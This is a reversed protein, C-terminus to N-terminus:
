LLLEGRLVRMKSVWDEVTEDEYFRITRWGISLLENDRKIDNEINMHWYKGDAELDIKLSPIAIDAYRMSIGTSIPYGTEIDTFMDKAIKYLKQELSSVFGIKGMRRNPHLNPNKQFAEKTKLSIQKRTEESHHKNYFHNKEGFMSPRPGMNKGKCGLSIRKKTEDSCIKGRNSDGIKKKVDPRSSSNNSGLRKAEPHEIYFKKIGESIQKLTNSSYINIKGKNWPMHGINSEAIKRVSEDNEKTKGKNWCVREGNSYAHKLDVSRQVNYIESIKIGKRGKSINESWEKSRERELNPPIHTKGCKLCITYYNHGKM